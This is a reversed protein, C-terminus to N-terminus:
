QPRITVPSPANVLLPGQLDPKGQNKEGSLDAPAETIFVAGYDILDQLDERFVIGDPFYGRGPRTLEAAYHECEFNGDDIKKNGNCDLFAWTLHAIPSYTSWTQSGYSIVGWQFRAPGGGDPRPNPVGNQFEVLRAVANNSSWGRALKPAYPIGLQEATASKSADFITVYPYIGPRYIARQLKMTVSGCPTRADEAPCQTPIDIEIVQGGRYRELPKEGMKCGAPGPGQIEELPSNERINPDCGGQDVILQQDPDKGWKVFPANITVKRGKWTFRKLPSYERNPVAGRLTEANDIKVIHSVRGADEVFEWRDNLLFKGEEVGAQNVEALNRSHMIGFEQAFGHDSAESLVFFVSVPTNSGQITGHYLPYTIRGRSNEVKLKVLATAHLQISEDYKLYSLLPKPTPVSTTDSLSELALPEVDSITPDVMTQTRPKLDRLEQEIMAPVAMKKGTPKLDALAKEIKGYIAKLDTLEAVAGTLTAAEPTELAQAEKMAKQLGLRLINAGRATLSGSQSGPVLREKERVLRAKEKEEKEKQILNRIEERSVNYPNFKRDATHGFSGGLVIVLSTVGLFMMYPFTRVM